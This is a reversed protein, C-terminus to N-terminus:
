VIMTNPILIVEGIPLNFIDDVVDNVDAILYWLYSSGYYKRAIDHLTQGDVITHYRNGMNPKFTIQTRLLSSDGESYTVIYGRDYLGEAIM